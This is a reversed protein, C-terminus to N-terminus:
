RRRTIIQVTAGSSEAAVSVKEVAREPDDVVLSSGARVRYTSWTIRGDVTSSREVPLASRLCWICGDFFTEDDVTLRIRGSYVRSSSGTSVDRGWGMRPEPRQLERGCRTCTGVGAVDGPFEVLWAIRSAAGFTVEHGSGTPGDPDGPLITLPHRPPDDLRFVMNSTSRAIEASMERECQAVLKNFERRRAVRAQEQRICAEAYARAEEEMPTPGLHGVKPADWFIFGLILLVGAVIACGITIEDRRM